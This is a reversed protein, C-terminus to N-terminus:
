RYRGTSFLLEKLYELVGAGEADAKVSAAAVLDSAEKSLRKDRHPTPIHPSTTDVESPIFHTNYCAARLHCVEIEPVNDGEALIFARTLLEVM